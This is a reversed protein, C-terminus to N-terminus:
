QTTSTWIHLCRSRSDTWSVTSIPQVNCRLYICYIRLNTWNEVLMKGQYFLCLKYWSYVFGPNYINPGVSNQVTPGFIQPHETHPKSLTVRRAGLLKLHNWSIQFIRAGMVYTATNRYIKRFIPAQPLESPYKGTKDGCSDLNSKLATRIPNASLPAPPCRTRCSELKEMGNATGGISCIWGKMKDNVSPLVRISLM